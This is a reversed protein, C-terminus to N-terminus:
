VILISTNRFVVQARVKVHSIVVDKGHFVDISFRYVFANAQVDLVNGPCATLQPVTIGCMFVALVVEVERYFVFVVDESNPYGDAVLGFAGKNGLGSWYNAAIGDVGTQKFFIVSRM